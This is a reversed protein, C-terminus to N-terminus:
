VLGDKTGGNKLYEKQEDDLPIESYYHAKGFSLKIIFSDQENYNRIKPIEEEDIENVSFLDHVFNRMVDSMDKKIKEVNLNNDSVEVMMNNFLVWRTSNVLKSLMHYLQISTNRGYINWDKHQYIIPLSFISKNTNDIEMIKIYIDNTFSRVLDEILYSDKIWDLSIIDKPYNRNMKKIERKIRTCITVSSVRSIYWIKKFSNEYNDKTFVRRSSEIEDDLNNIKVQKIFFNGNYNNIKDEIIEFIEKNSEIFSYANTLMYILDKLKLKITENDSSKIDKLSNVINKYNDPDRDRISLNLTGNDDLDIFQREYNPVVKYAINTVRSVHDENDPDFNHLHLNFSDKNIFFGIFKDFSDKAGITTLTLNFQSM